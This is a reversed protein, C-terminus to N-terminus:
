FNPYNMIDVQQQTEVGEAVVRVDLTKGVALIIFVLSIKQYNESMNNICSQAIKLTEFPLQSLYSLSSYGSGFDDLSLYVGLQKLNLLTQHVIEPEALIAKETIELELCNPSIRTEKLVDKVIDQFNPDKLQSPSLNVSITLPRLGQNQWMQNQRCVRNLIWQGIQTMLNSHEALPIFKDPPILGLRPHNWRVLAEVGSVQATKLNIQPQYYLVLEENDLAKQVATTIKLLNTKM